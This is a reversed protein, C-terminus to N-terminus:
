GNVLVWSNANPKIKIENNGTNTIVAHNDQVGLGNLKIGGKEIAKGVKTQGDKLYYILVGAM